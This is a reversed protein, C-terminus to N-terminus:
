ALLLRQPVPEGSGVRCDFGEIALLIDLGIPDGPRPESNWKRNEVALLALQRGQGPSLGLCAELHVCDAAPDLLLDHLRELAVLRRPTRECDELLVHEATDVLGEPEDFGCVPGPLDVEELEDDHLVIQHGGLQGVEVRERSKALALDVEFTRDPPGQSAPLVFAGLKPPTGRQLPRARRRTHSSGRAARTESSRSLRGGRGGARAGRGVPAGWGGWRWGG